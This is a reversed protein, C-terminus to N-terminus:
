VGIIVTYHLPVAGTGTGSPTIRLSGQQTVSNTASGPIEVYQTTGKADDSAFTVEASGIDTYTASGPPAYALTFTKTSTGLDSGAVVSFYSVAGAVPLGMYVTETITDSSANLVVNGAENLRPITM